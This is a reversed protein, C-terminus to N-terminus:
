RERQMLPRLPPPSSPVKTTRRVSDTIHRWHATRMSWCSLYQDSFKLAEDTRGLSAAAISLNILSRAEYLPGLNSRFKERAWNSSGPLVGISEMASFGPGRLLIEYLLLSRSIRIARRGHSFRIRVQNPFHRLSSDYTLSSPADRGLRPGRRRSTLNACLRARDPLFNEELGRMSPPRGLAKPTRNKSGRATPGSDHAPLHVMQHPTASPAM